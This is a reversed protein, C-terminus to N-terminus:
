DIPAGLAKLRARLKEILLDKQHHTLWRHVRTLSHRLHSAESKEKASKAGHCATCLIQLNAFKTAGGKFLPHIHDVEWTKAANWLLKKACGQCKRSAKEFLMMRTFPASLSRAGYEYDPSTLMRSRGLTFRTRDGFYGRVVSHHRECFTYKTYHGKKILNIKYEDAGGRASGRTLRCLMTEKCGPWACKVRSLGFSAQCRRSCFNRKGRSAHSRFREYVTGCNSCNLRQKASQAYRCHRSCYTSSGALTSKKILSAKRYVLTGCSYCPVMKGTRPRAPPAKRVPTKEVIAQDAM